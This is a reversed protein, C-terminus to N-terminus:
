GTNGDGSLRVTEVTDDRYVDLSRYRRNMYQSKPNTNKRARSLVTFSVVSLGDIDTTRRASAPEGVERIMNVGILVRTHIAAGGHINLADQDAIGEHGVFSSGWFGVLNWIRASHMWDAM